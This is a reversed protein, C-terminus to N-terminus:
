SLRAADTGQGMQQAQRPDALLEAVVVGPHQRSCQGPLWAQTCGKETLGCRKFRDRKTDKISKSQGGQRLLTHGLDAWMSESYLLESCM